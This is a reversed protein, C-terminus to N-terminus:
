LTQRRAHSLFHLWKVLLNSSILPQLEENDKKRREYRVSVKDPHMWQLVMISRGRQGSKLWCSKLLSWYSRKMDWVKWQKKKKNKKWLDIHHTIHQEAVAEGDGCWQFVLMPEMWSKSTTINRDFRWICTTDDERKKGPEQLPKRGYLVYQVRPSSILIADPVNFTFNSKIWVRTCSCKKLSFVWTHLWGESGKIWKFRNLCLVM